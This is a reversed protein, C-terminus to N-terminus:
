AISYIEKESFYLADIDDTNDRTIHVLCMSAGGALVIEGSAGIKGLEEDILSFCELMVARSFKEPLAEDPM